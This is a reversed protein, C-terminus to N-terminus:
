KTNLLHQFVAIYFISSILGSAFLLWRKKNPQAMMRLLIASSFAPYAFISGIFIPGVIYMKVYKDAYAAMLLTIVVYAILMLVPLM